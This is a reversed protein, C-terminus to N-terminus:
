KVITIDSGFWRTSIEKLTGDAKMDSVTDQVKDRLAEDGKRFGVAFVENGLSDPLVFFRDDSMSIYYYANVSDIFTVDLTGDRLSQMLEINDDFTVVTNDSYLESTELVDQTTSGSQVGITRGRIDKVGMIDSGATVVLVLENRLYPKTICMAEEREQSVSMGNWICDIRGSNLEEVKKDWDIPQKVLEIGLRNCVEQAVDIDFGVIEGSSDTYGMPPYNEDLGIVLQKADLVKKLSADTEPKSKDACGAATMLMPAAALATLRKLRMTM